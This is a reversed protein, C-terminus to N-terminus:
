AVKRWYVWRGDKAHQEFFACLKEVAFGAETKLYYFRHAESSAVQARAQAQTTTKKEREDGYVLGIGHDNM